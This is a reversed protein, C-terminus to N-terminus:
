ARGKFFDWRQDDPLEAEVEAEFTAKDFLIIHPGMGAWVVDKVLGAFARLDPPVLVRGSGDLEVPHATAIQKLVNRQAVADFPSSAMVNETVKSWASQPLCLISRSLANRMLVIRPEGAAALAERLKAPLATRGKADITHTFTGFFVPQGIRGSRDV